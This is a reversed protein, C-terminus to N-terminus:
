FFSLQNDQEPFYHLYNFIDNINCMTNAVKCKDYLLNMLEKQNDSACEYSDGYRHIYKEKLGKFNKDLASYFYERDGSRLTVGMGFCIIGKVNADFCYNLLGNLNEKTDNIYPLIPSIWVVTPINNQNLIKLTKYREYTTCVNPEIIKCLNEDYTTLTMQVVCKSKQNISKLLELDRLIMNSKTQITAGFGYKDIIELCKQTLKLEKEYHLYPDSMAGTGIMCKK